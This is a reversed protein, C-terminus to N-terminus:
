QKEHSFRGATYQCRGKGVLSGCLHPLPYHIRQTMQSLIFGKQIRDHCLRSHAPFYKELLLRLYEFPEERGSGIDHGKVTKKCHDQTGSRQLQPKFRVEHGLLLRFLRQLFMKQIFYICVAQKRGKHLQRHIDLVLAESLYKFQHLVEVLDVRKQRFLRFHGERHVFLFFCALDQTQLHEFCKLIGICRVATQFLEVRLVGPLEKAFFQEFFLGKPFVGPVFFHGICLDFRDIRCQFLSKCEPRSGSLHDYQVM